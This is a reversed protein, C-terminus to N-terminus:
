VWQGSLVAFYVTPFTVGAGAVAIVYLNSSDVFVSCGQPGTASNQWCWAFPVYGLGHSYAVYHYSIGGITITPSSTPVIDISGTLVIQQARSSASADVLWDDAGATSYDKGPKTVWLGGSGMRMWHTGARSGGVGTVGTDLLAACWAVTMTSPFVATYVSYQLAVATSSAEVTLGSFSTQAYPNAFPGIYWQGSYLEAAFFTFPAFSLATPFNVITASAGSTLTTSGYYGSEIPFLEGWDSDFIIDDQSSPAPDAVQGSTVIRLRHGGDSFKGARIRGATM